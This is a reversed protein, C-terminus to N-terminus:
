ANGFNNVTILSFSVTNGSFNGSLVNTKVETNVLVRFSNDTSVTNRTNFSDTNTTTTTNFSNTTTHTSVTGHPQGSLGDGVEGTGAYATGAGALAATGIGAALVAGVVAHKFRM